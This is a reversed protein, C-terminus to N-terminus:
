FKRIVNHGIKPIELPRNIIIGTQHSSHTLYEALPEPSIIVQGMLSSAHMFHIRGDEPMRVAIGTHSCDLGPVNTTIGLIDGTEINKEVDAVHEKPIYYFARRAHIDTEIELMAAYETDNQALQKYSTRHTTMFNIARDDYKAYRGGVEKTMIKLVGKQQNNYFYDISYHLRSHFGDRKGNRYRLFTLENEFDHRTPTPYKGIIRGLALMNEYFTVCDFGHLNMILNEHASDVDLTGAVYPTGLFLKGMAVIREGIPLTDYRLAKATHIRASFISDDASTSVQPPTHHSNRAACSGAVLAFALIVITWYPRRIM